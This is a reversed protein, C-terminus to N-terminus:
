RTTTELNIFCLVASVDQFPRRPYIPLIVCPVQALWLSRAALPGIVDLVLSNFNGRDLELCCCTGKAVVSATRKAAHLLSQEGFYDGRGKVAVVGLGTVTVEALGSEIVYMTDGEDGQTIVQYTCVALSRNCEPATNM